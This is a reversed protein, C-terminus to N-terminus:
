RRAGATFARDAKSTRFRDPGFLRAAGTMAGATVLNEIAKATVPALLIGNRHHGTAVVLGAVSTVGLIPADDDSTPRFGSWIAEIEMEESSPLARHVGELLALAGGATVAANFGTDEMTAGVILRGDGKPALHIQETWVVHSLTGTQRTTRLALAQGKLPRMPIDIGPPLLGDASWVGGAVIVTQARCTGASTAVGSIRGGSTELADVQCNQFLLGGRARLARVLAPILRRPDVQHDGACLIGAAISARLGPELARAEMGSLWSTDLGSRRQHEHRFRLREVEDRGLAVVLTGEDRYDIDLSSEAELQSRFEPWLGQSEVALALLNEGGPEHEAAAALMGTAAFTTGTGAQARDFVVVSLGRRALRWAISLGIVGAGVVAVDIQAPLALPHAGENSNETLPPPKLREGIPITSDSWLTMRM